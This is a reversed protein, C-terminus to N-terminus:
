DIKLEARVKKPLAATILRYSDDVMERLLDDPVCGSRYVSNWHEKNMYYGPVIDPYLSRLLAGKQPELKLTIIPKGEKDGGLMVFLKGRVMYRTAQWEPQYDRQVGAKELCYADLWDYM